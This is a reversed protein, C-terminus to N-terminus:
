EGQRPYQPNPDVNRIDQTLKAFRAEQEPTLEQSEGRWIVRGTWVGAVYIAFGAVVLALILVIDIM